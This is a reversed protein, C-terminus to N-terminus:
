EKQSFHSSFVKRCFMEMQSVAIFAARSISNIGHIWPLSPVKRHFAHVEDWPPILLSSRCPLITKIIPCLSHMHSKSLCHLLYFPSYSYLNPPLVFLWPTFLDSLFYLQLFSNSKTIFHLSLVTSPSVQVTFPQRKRSVLAQNNHVPTVYCFSHGLSM